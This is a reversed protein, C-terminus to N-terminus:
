ADGPLAPHDDTGMGTVGISGVEASQFPHDCRGLNLRQDEFLGGHEGPERGVRPHSETEDLRVPGKVVLGLALGLNGLADDGGDRSQAKGEETLWPAQQLRPGPQEPDRKQDLSEGLASRARIALEDWPALRVRDQGIGGLNLRLHRPEDRLSDGGKADVAVVRVGDLLGILHAGREM